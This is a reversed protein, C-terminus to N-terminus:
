CFAFVTTTQFLGAIAVCVNIWKWITSKRLTDAYRGTASKFKWELWNTEASHLRMADDISICQSVICMCVIGSFIDSQDDFTKNSVSNNHTTMNWVHVWENWNVTQRWLDDVSSWSLISDTQMHLNSNSIYVSASANSVVSFLLIKFRACNYESSHGNTTTTANTLVSAM